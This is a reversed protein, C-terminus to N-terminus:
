KQPMENLYTDEYSDYVLMEKGNTVVLFRSKLIKNYVLIQEIAGKDIGIETNKIEVLIKACGQTDYVLVDTRKKRGNILWEKEVAISNRSYGKVTILFNLFHQRVWEEPTLFVFKRRVVDYIQLDDGKKEIRHQYAPFILEIM